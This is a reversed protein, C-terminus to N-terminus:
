ALILRLQRSMVLRSALTATRACLSVLEKQPRPTGGQAAIPVRIKMPRHRAEALGARVASRVPEKERAQNTNELRADVVCTERNPIARNVPARMLFVCKGREQVHLVLVTM